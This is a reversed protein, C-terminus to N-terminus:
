TAADGAHDARRKLAFEIAQQKSIGNLVRYHQVSARSLGLRRCHGSITDTRGGYEFARSDPKSVGYRKIALVVGSISMSLTIAVLEFKNGCEALVQRLYDGPSMDLDAARRAVIDGAGFPRGRSREGM